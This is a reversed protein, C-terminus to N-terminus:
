HVGAHFAGQVPVLVLIEVNKNCSSASPQIVAKDDPLITDQGCEITITGDCQMHILVAKINSLCSFLNLDLLLVWPLGL